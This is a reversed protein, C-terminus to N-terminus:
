SRLGPRVNPMLKYGFALLLILFMGATPGAIWPWGIGMIGAAGDATPGGGARDTGGASGIAAVPQEESAAVPQEETAAVPQEEIAELEFIAEFRGADVVTVRRVLLDQARQGPCVSHVCFVAHVVELPEDGDKLRYGVPELVTIEWDADAMGKLTVDFPVPVAGYPTHFPGQNAPRWGFRTLLTTDNENPREDAMSISVAIEGSSEPRVGNAVVAFITINILSYPPPDASEAQYFVYGPQDEPVEVGDGVAVEISWRGDQDATTTAIPGLFVLDHTFQRRPSFATSISVQSDPVWNNGFLEVTSGAEGHDPVVGIGFVDGQVSPSGTVIWFLAVLSVLLILRHM